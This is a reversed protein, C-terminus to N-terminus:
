EGALYTISFQLQQTYLHSFEPGNNITQGSMRGLASRGWDAFEYGIGAQLHKSLVRQFGAGLSYTFAVENNSTFLPAAIEQIIMPSITFDNAQNLGVGLSGSIYPSAFIDTNSLLKGKIAVHQYQVNYTYNYNYYDIDGDEWVQGKVSVPSSAAVALGLQGFLFDNIQRQGGLFLEGNFLIEQNDNSTYTKKVDSQLYITQLEGPNVYAPGLSLTAVKLWHSNQVPGMSGALAINPLISCMFLLALKKTM